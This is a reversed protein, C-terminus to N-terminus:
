KRVSHFQDSMPYVVNITVEDAETEPSVLEFSKQSLVDCEAHSTDANAQQKTSVDFHSTQETVVQQAQIPLAHGIHSKETTTEFEPANPKADM